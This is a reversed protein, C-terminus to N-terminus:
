KLAKLTMVGFGEPKRMWNYAIKALRNAMKIKEKTRGKYGRYVTAKEGDSEAIDDWIFPFTWHNIERDSTTERFWDSWEEVTDDEEPYNALPNQKRMLSVLRPNESFFRGADEMHSDVEGAEAQETFFDAARVPGDHEPILAGMLELANRTFIAEIVNEIVEEEVEKVLEFKEDEMAGVKVGTKKADLVDLRLLTPLMGFLAAPDLANMEAKTMGTIRAGISEAEKPTPFVRPKPVPRPAEPKKMSAASRPAAKPQRPKPVPRPAEPKKMSAASRPAAEPKSQAPKPAPASAKVKGSKLAIIRELNPANAKSEAVIERHIAAVLAERKMTSYGKIRHSKSWERVFGRLEKVTHASIAERSLTM